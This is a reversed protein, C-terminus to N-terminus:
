PWRYGALRLAHGLHDPSYGNLRQEGVLTIPVGQGQMAQYDARGQSSTEVDYETYPINHDALFARTKKCYGCWSASYLVVAKPEKSPALVAPRRSVSPAAVSNVRITVKEVQKQVPPTDSFHTKGDADVWKYIEAQASGLVSLLLGFSLGSYRHCSRLLRTNM